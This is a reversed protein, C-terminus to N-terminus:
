LQRNEFCLALNSEDEYIAKTKFGIGRISGEDEASM